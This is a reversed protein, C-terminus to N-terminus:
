SQGERKSFERESDAEGEGKQGIPNERKVTGRKSISLRGRKVIAEKRETQKGELDVTVEERKEKEYNESPIVTTKGEEKKERIPIKEILKNM